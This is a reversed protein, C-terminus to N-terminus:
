TREKILTLIERTNDANDVTALMFQGTVVVMLGSILGGIGYFFGVAIGATSGTALGLVACVAGIIVIIWGVTIMLCFMMRAMSYKSAPEATPERRHTSTNVPREPAKMSDADLQVGGLERLNCHLHKAEQAKETNPYDNIVQMLLAMAEKFDGVAKAQLANYHIERATM